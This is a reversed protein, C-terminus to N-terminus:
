AFHMGFIIMKMSTAEFGFFHVVMMLCFAHGFHDDQNLNSWFGLFIDDDHLAICALFSWRWEPPKLVLFFLIMLMSCMRHCFHDNEDIPSLFGWFSIVVWFFTDAHSFLNWTMGHWFHDNDDFISLFVEFCRLFQWRGHVNDGGWGWSESVSKKSKFFFVFVQSILLFVCFIVFIASLFGLYIMAKPLNWTLILWRWQPAKSVGLFLIAMMWCFAHWFHDDENLHRLFGLFTDGDNLLICALFSWRWQPQKLVGLFLIM